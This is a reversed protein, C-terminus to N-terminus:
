WRWRGQSDLMRLVQAEFCVAERLRGRGNEPSVALSAEVLSAPTILETLRRVRIVWAERSEGPTDVLALQWLLLPSDSYHQWLKGAYRDTTSFLEQMLRIWILPTSTM